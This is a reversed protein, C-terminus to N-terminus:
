GIWGLRRACYNGWEVMGSDSFGRQRTSMASRFTKGRGSLKQAYRFILDFMTYTQFTKPCDPLNRSLRPIHWITQLTGLCIPFNGSLKSLKIVTHFIKPGCPFHGSLRSIYWVTQFTEPCDPLIGSLRSLHCVTKFTEPRNTFNRSPRSLKTSLRSLKWVTKFTTPCDPLNGVLRSPRSIGGITPLIYGIGIYIYLMIYMRCGRAELGLACLCGGVSMYGGITPLIYIWYWNMYGVSM